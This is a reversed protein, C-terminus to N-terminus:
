LDNEQPPEWEARELNDFVPWLEQWDPDSLVQLGIIHGGAGDNRFELRKARAQHGNYENYVEETVQLVTM